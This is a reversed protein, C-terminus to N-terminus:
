RRPARLGGAAPRGARDQDADRDLPRRAPHQDGGATAGHLDGFQPKRDQAVHRARLELDRGHSRYLLCRDSRLGGLNRGRGSLNHRRLRQARGPHSPHGLGTHDSLFLIRAAARGAGRRGGVGLVHGRHRRRQPLPRTRDRRRSRHLRGAHRVNGLDRRLCPRRQPGSHQRRGARAPFLVEGGAMGRDDQPPARVALLRLGLGVHEQM